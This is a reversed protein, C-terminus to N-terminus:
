SPCKGETVRGDKIGLHMTAFTDALSSHTAIIVTRGWELNLDHLLKMVAKGNRSDLNGTPEDAIVISPDNIL